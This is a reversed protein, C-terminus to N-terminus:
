TEVQKPLSPPETGKLSKRDGSVKKKQTNSYKDM